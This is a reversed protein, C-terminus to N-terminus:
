NVVDISTANFVHTAPNFVGYAVLHHAPTAAVISKPLQVAYDAFSNFEIISVTAAASLNGIAFLPLFTAPLGAPPAPVAYPAIQPNVTLTKIDITESGIRIVASTLAPDALDITLGTSTLTAFPTTTGASTWDVQLRAAASSEAHIASANFDPPASGFPAVLGFIQLPSGATTGAPLALTGTDVMYTAPTVGAPGNGTFNYISVPWNEITALDLEASGSASSVLPGFLETSQLRVSGTNTSSGTADITTVKSAPLSYIGRAIIHQGVAISNYNLGTLTANNEATVITGPGVLVVSDPTEIYQSQGTNLQLTAGRLTLINGHRAIVDGEIGQTYFDELTSGAIVYTPNFKGATVEPNLTATPEFNTYAATMTSGASLHSLVTLGADGVYSTGNIQYVTTPSNFLTLTGLVNSADFFPRVYVSYTEIGVSSNILPGRVRVQKTDAPSTAVTIFPKVTVTAPNTALNVVNSAALDFDVAVRRASSSTETPVIILQHNKDFTVNVTVTTVAAGTTDVVKAQQPVGNVMVAINAGTYDLVISASIYTDNPISGASWLESIHKLKMFDVTEPTTVPSITGYQVGTLTVSDVNVTYSTFEGPRGTLTFWGIGYGSNQNNHHCGASLVAAACLFVRLYQRAFRGFSPHV